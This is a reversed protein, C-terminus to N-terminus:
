DAVFGLFGQCNIEAIDTSNIKLNISHKCNALEFKILETMNVNPSLNKDKYTIINNFITHTTEM